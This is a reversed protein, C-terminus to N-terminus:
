RGLVESFPVEFLKRGAEDVVDFSHKTLNRRARINDVCMDGVARYAEICAHDADPLDAGATDLEYDEGTWLHFYYRAM